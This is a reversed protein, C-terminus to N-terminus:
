VAPEDEPAAQMKRLGLSGGGTRLIRWAPVDASAVVGLGVVAGEGVTVGPGVVAKACVWASDSIHIPKTILNFTTRSWDHSGTCLYAGQSVCAHAGISVTALNDIWVSEGIWSDDGIELRWPFKVVIRQKIVVRDGIKAGFLRLLAKRLGSAPLATRMFLVDALIWLIEVFLSRGRSFRGLSFTDLRVGRPRDM